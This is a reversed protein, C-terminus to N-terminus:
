HIEKWAKSLVEWEVGAEANVEKVGKELAVGVTLGKGGTTM